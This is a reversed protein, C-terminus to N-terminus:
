RPINKKMLTPELKYGVDESRLLEPKIIFVQLQDREDINQSLILPNDFYVQLELVKDMFYEVKWTLGFHKDLKTGDYLRNLTETCPDITVLLVSEDIQSTNFGWSEDRM